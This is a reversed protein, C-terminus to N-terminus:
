EDPRCMAFDATFRSRFFSVIMLPTQSLSLHSVVANRSRALSQTSSPRQPSVQLSYGRSIGRLRRWSRRRLSLLPWQSLPLNGGTIATRKTALVHELCGRKLVGGAVDHFGRSDDSYSDSDQAMSASYGCEVKVLTLWAHKWIM